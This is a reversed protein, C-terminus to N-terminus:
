AESVAVLAAIRVLVGRWRDLYGFEIPRVGQEERVRNILRATGIASELWDNVLQVRLSTTPLERLSRLEKQRAHFFHVRPHELAYRYGGNLCEDIDCALQSRLALSELLGTADPGRVASMVSRLYVPKARGGRLRGESDRQRPQDLRSLSFSDGGDLGSDFYDVGLAALVLGFAGPRGAIVKLGATQAEQLFRVFAVLKEVGDRKSDLQLPQVYIGAWTRDGLRDFVSFRGRVVQLGPYASAIMPRVPVDSSGNVSWAFDHLAQWAGFTKASARALPLSPVVYLAPEYTAQFRLAAEVMVKHDATFRTPDLAAPPAYPLASLSAVSRYGPSAFRVSQPDIAWPIPGDALRVLLPPDRLVYAAEVIAGGIAPAEGGLRPPTLLQELSRGEHQTVHVLLSLPEGLTGFM